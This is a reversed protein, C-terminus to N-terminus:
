FFLLWSLLFYQFQLLSFFTYFFVSFTMLSKFSILLFEIHIYMSPSTSSLLNFSNHSSFIDSFTGLIMFLMLGCIWYVRFIGFSLFVVRVHIMAFSSFVLLYISFTLAGFSFIPIKDEFSCCYFLFKEISIWSLCLIISRCKVICFSLLLWDLSGM